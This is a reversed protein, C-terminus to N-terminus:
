SASNWWASSAMTIPTLDSSCVSPHFCQDRRAATPVLTDMPAMGTQVTVTAPRVTPAPAAQRHATMRRAMQQHDAQAARKATKVGVVEQATPAQAVDMLAAVMAHVVEETRGADM